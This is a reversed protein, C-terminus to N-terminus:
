DALQKRKINRLWWFEVAIVLLMAILGALIPEWVSSSELLLWYWTTMTHRSGNEAASGDWAAFVVPIFVGESFQIDEGPNETAIKRKFLVRWTGNLYTGTAHVDPSERLIIEAFGKANMLSVTEPLDTTGSKWHWINVPNAVDGMGFYPKEMSDPITVPFQIAVGDEALGEESIKEATADGPISKTRDDWTLLVAIYEESYMARVTITDYSPTFQREEAIIQPVLFFTSPQSEQWRPDDTTEAVDGEVLVAKVVTNQPDVVEVTKELSKVYNAVHWREEISLKKTSAEDAFSPMQTGPIGTSIRAFIERPDNGGLFNWPKTLNRPWTRESNDGLLRKKADGKGELGHCETCRDDELYLEKGKGISIASSPIQEGYALEPGPEEEDYGSFIKLYSLVNWMDQDSLLDSWGPMSTGPMGDSVMKFLDEDRPVYEDFATTMIKFMGSTFDRPPPLLREAGPGLGDGEEGHCGACHQFYIEEGKDAEGLDALTLIPLVLALGAIAYGVAIRSLINTTILGVRRM